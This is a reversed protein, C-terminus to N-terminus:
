QKLIEEKMELLTEAFRKVAQYYGSGDEYPLVETARGIAWQVAIEKQRDGTGRPVNTQGLEKKIRLKTGYANTSAEYYVDDGVAYPPNEPNTSSAIGTVVTGDSETLTVCYEYMQNGQASTWSSNENQITTVKAEKM